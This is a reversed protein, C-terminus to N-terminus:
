RISTAVTDGAARVELREHGLVAPVALEREIVREIMAADLPADLTVQRQPTDDPAAASGGGPLYITNNNFDVAFAVLGPILYLFLGIGDLIVIAPDLRGPGQGTREPHLLTGCASQTLVLAGLLTGTLLKRTRM